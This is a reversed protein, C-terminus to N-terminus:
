GVVEVTASSNSLSTFATLTIAELQITTDQTVTIIGTAPGSQAVHAASTPTGQVGLVGFLAAGTLDRWSFTALGTAGSFTCANINAVCRYTHGASLTFIGAGYSIVNGLNAAEVSFLVPAAAVPTLAGVQIVYALSASPFSQPASM